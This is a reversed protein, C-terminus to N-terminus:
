QIKEKELELLFRKFDLGARFGTLTGNKGIVRHCPVTILVPNAGIAAGVARVATPRNIRQAIESYSATTGYPIEQLAQWIQEQFPTGKADVPLSFNRNTGDFYAQLEIIYPELAQRNEVIEQGKFNKSIKASFEEFSEGPTSIYCLGAASKALFLNWGGFSAETWDIGTGLLNM